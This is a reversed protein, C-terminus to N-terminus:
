QAIDGDPFPGYIRCPSPLSPTEGHELIQHTISMQWNMGDNQCYTPDSVAVCVNDGLMRAQACLGEIHRQINEMVQLRIEFTDQSAFKPKGSIDDALKALRRSRDVDQPQQAVSKYYALAAAYADENDNDM